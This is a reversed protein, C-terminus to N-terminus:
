FGTQFKLNDEKMKNFISEFGLMDWLEFTRKEWCFGMKANDINVIDDSVEGVLDSCYLIIQFNNVMFSVLLMM